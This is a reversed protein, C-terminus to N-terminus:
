LDDDEKDEKKLIGKVEKMTQSITLPDVVRRTIQSVQVEGKHEIAVSDGYKKPFLKSLTWKITDVTVRVAAVKEHSVMSGLLDVLEDDKYSGGDKFKQQIQKAVEKKTPGNLILDCLEFMHDAYRDYGEQRARMYDEAFDKHKGGYLWGTITNVPPLDSDADCIQTISRKERVRELIKEAIEKTYVTEGIPRKAM